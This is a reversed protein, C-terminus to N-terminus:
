RITIRADCSDIGLLKYVPCWAVLGSALPIIGLLAWWRVGEDLMFFLGLILLGLVIRIVRDVTGVNAEM